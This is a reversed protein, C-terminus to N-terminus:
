MQPEPLKNSLCRTVVGIIKASLQASQTGARIECLELGKGVVKLQQQVQKVNAIVYNPYTHISNQIANLVGNFCKYQDKPDASICGDVSETYRETGESAMDKFGEIADDMILTSQNIINSNCNKLDGNVTGILSKLNERADAACDYIDVNWDQALQELKELEKTSADVNNKIIVSGAEEVATAAEENEALTAGLKETAYDIYAATISKYDELARKAAKAIGEVDEKVAFATIGQFAIFAACILTFKISM